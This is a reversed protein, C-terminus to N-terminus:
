VIKCSCVCVYVLMCVHVFGRVCVFACVLMRLWVRAYLVSVYACMCMRVSINLKLCLVVCTYM